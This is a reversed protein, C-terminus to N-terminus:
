KLVNIHGVFEKKDDNNQDKVVAKWTYTGDQVVQGKYTGDWGVNLDNSEWILQGWKNFIKVNFSTVDIGLVASKWSQNFEDGNPTFTNPAFFLIDTNVYLIKTITDYCGLDSEVILTVEHQGVDEPFKFDPKMETSSSPTSGLSFWQWGIVNSSSADVMSIDTQFQTTPNKSFHFNAIPDPHITVLSKMTDSYVCGYISTSTMTVTYGGSNPYEYVFGESGNTEIVQGNGMEIFSTAIESRNDSTNEFAITGPLCRDTHNPTLEPRIPTPFTITLCSDTQPSGCAETLTVCYRTNTVEPDVIIETGNGIFDGNKTWTYTYESSGGSGAVQLVIDHEPCIQTNPTLTTISLADPQNLTIPLTVICGLNDTVTVIHNGVGLDNASNDLSSSNNWSYSYPASGLTATVEATGDFASNCTIDTQNAIVVQLPPIETVEISVTESCGIDSTIVCTYTGAALGTAIETTQANPDNWQYTLNGMVPTMAATATGDSGNTCSVQTMTATFSAPTDTIQVTASSQCGNADTMVVTQAGAGLGTITETTTNGATTWNFSYPALGGTPTATATGINASCLDATSSATVGSTLGTVWSTDSVGGIAAGCSSGTIYYGIPGGSSVSSVNLIGNNYPYTNGETDAWEYTGNPSSIFNYPVNNLTYGNTEPTPNPVFEYGVQNLDYQTNNCGPVISALTGDSNQIGTISLGGNWTACNPKNGIHMEIINSGEYLIVGMYNCLENGCSFYGLDAYLIVFQRNPATGITEYLIEHNPAASPLLDQYAPMIANLADDFGPNPMTGAGGLNWACYGNAESADFSIIGNSGIVCQSYTNGYFEFDFGINILGSWADDNMTPIQTPNTLQLIQTGNGSNISGSCNNINLQTGACVSTDAGLCIQDQANLQTVLLLNLVLLLINKM